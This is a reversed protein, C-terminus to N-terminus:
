FEHRPFRLDVMWRQRYDTTGDSQTTIDLLLYSLKGTICVESWIIMDGTCKYIHLIPSTKSTCTDTWIAHTITHGLSVHSLRASNSLVSTKKKVCAAWPGQCEAMHGFHMVKMKVKNSPCFDFILDRGWTVESWHKITVSSIWTKHHVM